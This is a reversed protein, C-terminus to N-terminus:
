SFFFCVIKMCCKFPVSVMFSDQECSKKDLLNTKFSRQRCKETLSTPCTDAVLFLVFSFCENISDPEM